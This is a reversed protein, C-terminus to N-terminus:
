AAKKGQKRRIVETNYRIGKGKYPEPKKKERVNAAFQGLVEKDNGTMTIVGKESTVKIGAPIKMKVPHSFGLAMNLSDGAVDIKYGVGEVILQKQFGKTVGEIMNALHAASTGWTATDSVTTGEPVVKVENGVVEVSVSPHMEKSLEGLPGKVSVRAGDVSVTTNAPLTFIQKGVRSMYNGSQSFHSEM